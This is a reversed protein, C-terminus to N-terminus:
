NGRLKPCFGSKLNYITNYLKPSINFLIAKRINKKSRANERVFDKKIFHKTNQEHMRGAAFAFLYVSVLYDNLLFRLEEDELGKYFVNLENVTSILHEANKRFDAGRTISNDRIVYNYFCHGSVVVREANLFVRPTWEEDEHLLGKQFFLSNGILFKRNYMNLWAAMKIARSTKLEKKLFVSGPVVYQAEHHARPVMLYERDREKKRAAGVVVDVTRDKIAKRFLAVADEELYDDSDVFLVYEGKASLLGANRADSLGGNEKHIVTIRPDKKAYEDCMKPCNDPSGDDVLIVEIESSTQAILSEVCRPLLEEVRYVPVIISVFASKV